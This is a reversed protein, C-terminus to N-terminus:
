SLLLPIRYGKQTKIENLQEDTLNDVDWGKKIAYQSAFTERLAQLDETTLGTEKILQEEM